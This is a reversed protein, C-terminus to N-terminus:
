KNGQINGQICNSLTTVLLLALIGLLFLYLYTIAFNIITM